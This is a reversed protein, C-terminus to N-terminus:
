DTGWASLRELDQVTDVDDPSGDCEVAVVARNRWLQRAGQDGFNPIDAWLSRGIRVPPHLTGGFSAVALAAKSAGVAAWASQPILPADALGVVVADHAHEKCWALGTALSSAQGSPWSTNEVWTVAADTTNRLDVPGWVVVTEDFGGAAAAEIAACALPRNRFPTLLKHTGAFPGGEASALWRTAGGAALVIGAVTDPM